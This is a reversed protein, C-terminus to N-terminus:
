SSPRPLTPDYVAVRDRGEKKARYLAADAAQLLKGADDAHHPFVAIGQSVTIRGLDQDHQRIELARVARLLDEAKKEASGLTCDPLILFLEEGGYRCAIDSARLNRQLLSGIEALVTDGAVHGYRDNFRKFHDVDILIVSLPVNSRRSRALERELTEEMYRRNFLGTLPDRVAQTKLTQLLNGHALALAVYGSMSSILETDANKPAPPTAGAPAPAPWLMHVTGLMEGQAILPLCLYSRNEEQAHKCAFGDDAPDHVYLRGRRLALCDQPHFVAHEPPRPGWTVVSEVFRRSANLLYVAGSCEPFARSFQDAVIAHLEEASQVMQFQHHMDSLRLQDRKHAELSEVTSKLKENSLATTLSDHEREQLGQNILYWATALSVLGIIGAILLNRWFISTSRELAASRSLGVSLYLQNGAIGELSTFSYIREEEDLGKALVTDKHLTLITKVLEADGARRGIWKQPEPHRALVTGAGDILTVAARPPLSFNALSHSVGVLDISAYLVRSVRNDRHMVPMAVPLVPKNVIRGVQYEGIVFKREELARRFYGRDSLNVRGTPRTASCSVSGDPEIMGINAFLSNQRAVAQLTRDCTSPDYRQLRFLEALTALLDHASQFHSIQQAAALSAHATVDRRQEEVANERQELGTYLNLVLLPVFALLLMGFIRWRYMQFTPATM